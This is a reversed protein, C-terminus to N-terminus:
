ASTLHAAATPNDAQPAAGNGAGDGAAIVAAASTVAAAADLDRHLAVIALLDGDGLVIVAVDLHAVPHRDDIVAIAHGLGDAIGGAPASLLRRALTRRGALIPRAM